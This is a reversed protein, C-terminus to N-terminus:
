LKWNKRKKIMDILVLIETLLVAGVCGASAIIVKIKMGEEQSPRPDDEIEPNQLTINYNLRPTTAVNEGNSYVTVFLYGEGELDNSKLQFTPNTTPEGFATTLGNAYKFLRFTLNDYNSYAITITITEGPQIEGELPSNASLMFSVLSVNYSIFKNDESTDLIATTSASDRYVKAFLIGQGKLQSAGISFTGNGKALLTTESNSTKYLEYYYIEGDTSTISVNINDSDLLVANNLDQTSSINFENKEIDTFNLENTTYVLTEDKYVEVFLTGSVKSEEIIQSPLISFNTTIVEKILTPTGSVNKFMKFTFKETEFTKLDFNIGETPNKPGELSVSTSLQFYKLANLCENAIVEHGNATPCADGADSQFQTAINTLISEIPLNARFSFKDPNINVYNQYDNTDFGEFRTYVDAVYVDKSASNKIITNIDKIAAVTPALMETFNNQFRSFLQSAENSDVGAPPSLKTFDFVKYPNYVTMVVVKKGKLSNLISPFDSEFTAVSNSLATEYNEQLTTETSLDASLYSSLNNELISFINNGGISIVFIDTDDFISQNIATGNQYTQLADKLDTSTYTDSGNKDIKADFTNKYQEAFIDLFSDEGTNLGHGSAIGDGFSQIRFEEGGQLAYSVTNSNAGFFVCIGFIFIFMIILFKKKM